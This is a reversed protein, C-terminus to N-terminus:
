QTSISALKFGVGMVSWAKCSRRVGQRRLHARGQAPLPARTVLAQKPREAQQDLADESQYGLFVAVQGHRALPARLGADLRLSSM